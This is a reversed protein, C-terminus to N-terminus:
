GVGIADFVYDWLTQSFSSLLRDTVRWGIVPELANGLQKVLEWIHKVEDDDSAAPLPVCLSFQQQEINLPTDHNAM